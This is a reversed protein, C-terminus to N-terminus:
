DVIPACIRSGYGEADPSVEGHARAVVLDKSLELLRFATNGALSLSLPTASFHINLKAAPNNSSEWGCSLM